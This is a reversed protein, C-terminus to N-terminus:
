SALSLFSQFCFCSLAPLSGEFVPEHAVQVRPLSPFPTETPVWPPPHQPFPCLSNSHDQCLEKGPSTVEVWWGEGSEGRYWGQRVGVEDGSSLFFM